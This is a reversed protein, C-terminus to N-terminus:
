LALFEVHRADGLAIFVAISAHPHVNAPRESLDDDLRHPEGFTEWDYSCISLDPAIARNLNQIGAM